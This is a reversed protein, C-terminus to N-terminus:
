LVAMPALSTAILLIFTFDALLFNSYEKMYSIQSKTVSAFYIHSTNSVALHIFFIKTMIVNMENLICRMDLWKKLTNESDIFVPYFQNSYFLIEIPNLKSHTQSKSNLHYRLVWFMGTNGQSHQGGSTAQYPRKDREREWTRTLRHLYGQKWPMGVDTKEEWRKEKGAARNGRRQSIM